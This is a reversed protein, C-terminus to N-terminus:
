KSKDIDEFFKIIKNKFESFNLFGDDFFLENFPISLKNEIDDINIIIQYNPDYKSRTFTSVTVSKGTKKNYGKFKINKEIFKSFLFLISQIVFFGVVLIQLYRVYEYNTFDNKFKKELYYMLGSLIVSSYGLILKTDILTFSEKFGLTEFVESLHEDSETRLAHVSYLSVKKFSM